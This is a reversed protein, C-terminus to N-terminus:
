VNGGGKKIISLKHNCIFNQYFTHKIKSRLTTHSQKKLNKQYLSRPRSIYSDIAGGCVNPVMIQSKSRVVIATVYQM